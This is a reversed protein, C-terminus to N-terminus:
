SSLWLLRCPWSHGTLALVQTSQAINGYALIIQLVAIMGTTLDTKHTAQVHGADSKKLSV